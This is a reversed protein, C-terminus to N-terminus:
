GKVVIETWEDRWEFAGDENEEGDTVTTPESEVDEVTIAKPKTSAFASAVSAMGIYLSYIPHMKGLGIAAVSVLAAIGMSVLVAKTREQM